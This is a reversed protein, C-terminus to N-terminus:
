LIINYKIVKQNDTEMKNNNDNNNKEEKKKEEEEIIKAREEKVQNISDTRYKEEAEYRFKVMDNPLHRVDPNVLKFEDM